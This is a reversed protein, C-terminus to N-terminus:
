SRHTSQEIVRIFEDVSLNKGPKEIEEPLNPKGMREMQEKAIKRSEEPNPNMMLPERRKPAPPLTDRGFKRRPIARKKHESWCEPKLKGGPSQM